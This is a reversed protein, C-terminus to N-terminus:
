VIGDQLARLDTKLEEIAKSRGSMRVEVVAQAAYQDGMNWDSVLWHMLGQRSMRCWAMEVRWRDSRDASNIELSSLSHADIKSSTRKGSM